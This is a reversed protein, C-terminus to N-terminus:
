KKPPVFNWWEEDTMTSKPIEIEPKAEKQKEQEQMEKWSLGENGAKSGIKCGDLFEKLWKM